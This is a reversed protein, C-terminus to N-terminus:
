ANQERWVRLARYDYGDQKFGPREFAFSVREGENLNRSGSGMIGSFHVFCGGPTEPADIVGWGEEADYSRVVGSIPGQTLPDGPIRVM